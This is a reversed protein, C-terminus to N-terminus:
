PTLNAAVWADVEAQSRLRVYPRGALRDPMVRRREGYTALTFRFLGDRALVANRFTERNGNWLVERRAIRRATRRCMRALCVAIPLDLWIVLDAADTVMGRLRGHYNGDIVWGAEGVEAAVRAEFDPAPQWGPLHHLSDLEVHRLGYHEALRRALTTKGAGSSTAVVSIRRPTPLFEPPSADDLGSGAM